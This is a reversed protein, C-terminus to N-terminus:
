ETRKGKEQLTTVATKAKVDSQGKSILYFKVTEDSQGKVCIISIHSLAPSLFWLSGRLTFLDPM